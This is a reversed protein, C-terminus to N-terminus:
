SVLTERNLSQACFSPPSDLAPLLRIGKNKTQMTAVRRPPYVLRRTAVHNRRGQIRNLNRPMPSIAVAVCVIIVPVLPPFYSLREKVTSWVRPRRRRPAARRQAPHSLPSNSWQSGVPPFLISLRGIAGRALVARPPPRETPPVPRSEAPPLPPPAKVRRAPSDSRLPALFLSLAMAEMLDDAEAEEPTVQCAERILGLEGLAVVQDGGVM